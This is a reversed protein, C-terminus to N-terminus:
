APVEAPPKKGTMRAATEAMTEEAEAPAAAQPAAPKMTALARVINAKTNADLADSTFLEDLTTAKFEEPLEVTKEDMSETGPLAALSKEFAANAAQPNGYKPDNYSGNMEAM